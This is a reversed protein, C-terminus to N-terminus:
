VFIVHKRISSNEGVDSVEDIRRLQWPLPETAMEHALHLTTTMHYCTITCPLINYGRNQDFNTEPTMHINVM